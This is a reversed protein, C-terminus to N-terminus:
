TEMAYKVVAKWDVGDPVRVTTVTPLRASKEGVFLDLGLADLGTVSFPAHTQLNEGGEILICKKPPDQLTRVVVDLGNNRARYTSCSADRM